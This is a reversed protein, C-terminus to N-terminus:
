RRTRMGKSTVGHQRRRRRKEKRITWIHTSKRVDERTHSPLARSGELQWRGEFVVRENSSETPNLDGCGPKKVVPPGRVVDFPVDQQFHAPSPFVLSMSKSSHLTSPLVLPQPSLSAFPFHFPICLCFVLRDGDVMPPSGQHWEIPLSGALGAPDFAVEPKKM